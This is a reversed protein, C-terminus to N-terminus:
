KWIVEISAPACGMCLEQSYTIRLCEYEEESVMHCSGTLSKQFQQRYKGRDDKPVIEDLVKKLSNLGRCGTSIDLRTVVDSSNFQVRLPELERGFCEVDKSDKLCKVPKGLTEQIKARTVNVCKKPIRSSLPASFSLIAVILSIFFLHSFIVNIFVELLASRQAQDARTPNM